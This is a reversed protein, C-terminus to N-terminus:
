RDTRRGVPLPGPVKTEAYEKGALTRTDMGMGRETGEDEFVKLLLYRPDFLRKMGRGLLRIELRLKSSPPRNLLILNTILILKHLLLRYGTYLQLTFHRSSTPSTSSVPLTRVLRCPIVTGGVEGHGIQSSLYYQTYCVTTLNGYKSSENITIWGSHTNTGKYIFYTYKDM